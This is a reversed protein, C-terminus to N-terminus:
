TTIMQRTKGFRLDAELVFLIYMYKRSGKSCKLKNLM